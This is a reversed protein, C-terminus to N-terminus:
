RYICDEHLKLLKLITLLREETSSLSKKSENIYYNAEWASLVRGLLCESLYDLADVLDGDSNKLAQEVLKFEAEKLNKDKCGSQYKVINDIEDPNMKIPSRETFSKSEYFSKMKILPYGPEKSAQQDLVWSLATNYPNSNYTLYWDLEKPSPPFKLVELYLKRILRIQLRTNEPSNSINKEIAGLTLLVFLGLLFTRM